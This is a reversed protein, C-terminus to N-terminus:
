TVEWRVLVRFSDLSRVTVGLEIADLLDKLMVLVAREREVLGPRQRDVRDATNAPLATRRGAAAGLSSSGCAESAGPDIHSRTM